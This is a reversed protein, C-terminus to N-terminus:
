SIRCGPPNGDFSYVVNEFSISNNPTSCEECGCSGFQVTRRIRSLYCHAFSGSGYRKVLAYLLTIYSRGVGGGRSFLPMRRKSMKRWNAGGQAGGQQGGLV